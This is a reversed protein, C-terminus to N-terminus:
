VCLVICFLFIFFLIFYLIMICTSSDRAYLWLRAKNSSVYQHFLEDSSLRETFMDSTSRKYHLSCLFWVNRGIISDMRGFLIGYNAVYRVLSCETISCAVVFNCVRRCMCSMMSVYLSVFCIFWIVKLRTVPFACVM